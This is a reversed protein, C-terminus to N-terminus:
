TFHSSAHGPVFEHGSQSSAPRAAADTSSKQGEFQQYRFPQALVTDDKGTVSAPNSYDAAAVM